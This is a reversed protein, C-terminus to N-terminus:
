QTSASSLVHFGISNGGAYGGSIKITSVATSSGFESWLYRRPTGIISYNEGQILRLVLLYLRSRIAEASGCDDLM